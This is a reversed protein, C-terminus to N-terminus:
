INQGRPARMNTVSSSTCRWCLVRDVEKGVEIIEDCGGMPAYQGWKSNEPDHNMCKIKKYETEGRKKM